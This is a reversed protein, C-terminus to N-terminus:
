LERMEKGTIKLWKQRCGVIIADHSEIRHWEGYETLYEEATGDPRMNTMTNRLTGSTVFRNYSLWRVVIRTPSVAWWYM